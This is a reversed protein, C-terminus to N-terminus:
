RVKRGTKLAAVALISYRIDKSGIYAFTGFDVSETLNEDLYRAVHNIADALEKYTYYM